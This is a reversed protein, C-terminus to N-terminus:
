PSDRFAEEDLSGLLGETPARGKHNDNSVNLFRPSSHAQFLNLTFYDFSRVGGVFSGTEGKISGVSPWYLCFFTGNIRVSIYAFCGAGNV